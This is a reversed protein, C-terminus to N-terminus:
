RVPPAVHTHTHLTRDHPTTNRSACLHLRARVARPFTHLLHVYADRACPFLAVALPPARTARAVGARSANRVRPHQRPRARRVVSTISPETDTPTAQQVRPRARLLDSDERGSFDVVLYRFREREFSNELINIKWRARPRSRSRVRPGRDFTSRKKRKM